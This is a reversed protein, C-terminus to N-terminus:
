APPSSSFFARSDISPSYGRGPLTYPEGVVPSGEADM